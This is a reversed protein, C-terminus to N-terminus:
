SGPVFANYNGNIQLPNMGNETIFSIDLDIKVANAESGVKRSNDVKKLKAMHIVDIILPGQNAGIGDQYKVQIDFRAEMYGSGPTGNLNCLDNILNQYELQLITFSAEAKHQGRTSGIKQALTGYVDGPELSQSYNIETIGVIATNNAIFSIASYDYRVGNILPYLVPYLPAGM